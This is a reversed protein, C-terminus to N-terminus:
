EDRGGTTKDGVHDRSQEEDIPEILLTLGDVDAVRAQQGDRLPKGTTRANWWAGEVFVQTRQDDPRDLQVVRGVLLGPGGTAPASRSRLALRGALIVAVGVVLAVPLVVELGVEAGSADRFLFAGSLALTIAGGVAFGAFGPAVVEAVFLSAALFLLLLGAINVPLVSLAFLALVLCVVGVAGGFGVGPTALEYILGLTGISLLLFALNPDALFQLIRRFLGLDYREVVADATRLVREGSAVEVVRGDIADLLDGLSDARLDVAGVRVAESAPVSRGKRVADIAFEIDRGRQEAISEALAAADNVIKREVDDGEIGVPTAAGIVTGPAMAAVNAALTIIAGASAARAGSPSVYVVVPVDAALFRQVIERMSTDLGGPTDLEVVYAEYEGAEARDVGEDLQDAIVPTISDRVATVLVRPAEGSAPGPAAGVAVAGGILLLFTLLRVPAGFSDRKRM